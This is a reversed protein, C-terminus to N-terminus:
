RSHWRERGAQMRIRNRKVQRALDNLGYRRFLGELATDNEVGEEEILKARLRREEELVNESTALRDEYGGITQAQEGIKRQADALRAELNVLRRKHQRLARADRRGDVM